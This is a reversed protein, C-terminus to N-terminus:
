GKGHHSKQGNVQRQVPPVEFGEAAQRLQRGGRRLESADVRAQVIKREEAEHPDKARMGKRGADARLEPNEVGVRMPSQPHGPTIVPDVPQQVERQNGDAVGYEFIVGVAPCGPFRQGPEGGVIGQGGIRGTHPADTQRHPKGNKVGEQRDRGQGKKRGRRLKM